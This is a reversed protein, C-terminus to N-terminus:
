GHHEMDFRILRSAFRSSEFSTMANGVDIDAEGRDTAPRGCAIRVFAIWIEMQAAPIVANAASEYLGIWRWLSRTGADIPV